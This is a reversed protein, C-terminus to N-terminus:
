TENKTLAGVYVLDDATSDRAAVLAIGGVAGVSRIERNAEKLTNGSTLIDDVLIVSEGTLSVSCRMKDWVNKLRDAAKLSKQSQVPEKWHLCDCYKAVGILKSLSKALAYPGAVHNSIAVDARSTSTPPIPIVRSYKPVDVDNSVMLIVLVEAFQDAFEGTEKLSFIEQNHKFNTSPVYLTTAIARLVGLHHPDNYCDWCRGWGKYKIEIPKFCIQCKPEPVLIHKTGDSRDILTFREKVFKYSM